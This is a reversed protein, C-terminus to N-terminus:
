KALPGITNGGLRFPKANFARFAQDLGSTLNGGTFGFLPVFAPAL